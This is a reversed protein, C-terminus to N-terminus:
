PLDQLENYNVKLWARMNLSKDMRNRRGVTLLGCVSFLGEVVAQSAPASILWTSDTLYCLSMQHYDRSGSSLLVVRVNVRCKLIYTLWTNISNRSATAAASSHSTTGQSQAGKDALKEALRQFQTLPAMCVQTLVIVNSCIACQLM